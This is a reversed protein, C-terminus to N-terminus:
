RRPREAGHRDGSPPGLALRARGRARESTESAVALAADVMDAGERFHTTRWWYPEIAAALRLAREGDRNAIWHDFAARLNALDREMEDLAPGRGTVRVQPGRREALALYHEAHRHRVADADPARALEAAAFQRVVELQKVRQDRVQALSKSVLGDLAAVPAETVALAADIGAGGIFVSLKRFAQQEEEDLLTHSWELTARMTRQREPADRPGAELLPLADGLRAVLQEPELLGVRGAALEIALPLGDLRRCLEAVARANADTLGFEPRRDRARDVFLAIADSEALPPLPVCQEGTLRLPERSTALVHLQPCAEVLEALLPSADLVHEVNDVVLLTETGGLRRVLADADREGPQVAVKVARALAGPVEGATAVRALYAVHTGGPFRPALTRAAEVAVRTKGVGGPGTLTVLQRDAVTNAVTRLAAERGV